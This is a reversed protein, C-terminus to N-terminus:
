DNSYQKLEDWVLNPEFGRGIIYQATKAVRKYNQIGQNKNWTKEILNQLVILYEEPEIETLGISICTSTIQKQKLALEIKKKGWQKMRFKGRSFARSYREENLYNQQILEMIVEEREDSAIQFDWLKNRVEMQCREQYACYKMAKEVAQKVTYVQSDKSM